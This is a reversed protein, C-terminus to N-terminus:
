HHVACNIRNEALFSSFFKCFLLINSVRWFNYTYSHHFSGAFRKLIQWIKYIRKENLAVEYVMANMLPFFYLLVFHFNFFVLHIKMNRVKVGLIFYPLNQLTKCSIKMSCLSQFQSSHRSLRLLYASWTKLQFLITDFFVVFTVVMWVFTRCGM